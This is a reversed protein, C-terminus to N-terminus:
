LQKIINKEEAKIKKPIDLWIELLMDGRKNGRLLGKNPVRLIHGVQTGGKVTIRIKGDLTEIDVPAGLVLDKYTLKIQQHIDLGNRRFIAHPSEVINVVLDGSIGRKFFNGKGKILLIEGDMIGKPIDFELTEEKLFIGKGTCKKCPNITKSGEGQCDSCHVNNQIKGFPTQQLQTLIGRGGCQVCKIQDGGHGNCSNCKDNRKYKIKKHSGTFVDELPLDINVRIDSGRHPRSNRQRQKGFGGNGFFSSFIDDVNIGGAGFPNGPNGEASGYTDYNHKKDTDSLINYAETVEKFKEESEKNDPNLDPHYQKSKDRYAKKIEKETSNKEVGLIEYYDKTM